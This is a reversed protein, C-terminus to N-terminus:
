RSRRRGARRAEPAVQPSTSSRPRISSSFRRSAARRGERAQLLGARGERRDLGRALMADVFPPLVFTARAAPDTSGSRAPQARRAGPHRHRRSRAHPVHREEAPRDAPGTIADIEEISYDGAAVLALARVVDFLALHNGIFNPSDKAVVVGKGLHVTPSRPVRRGARGSRHRADSDARAAAPLAAPQLLAHGALPAPLRRQARRGARRDPIGSTNSSVVSGKRRRPTWGSSCRASPTSSSSSASSSGTPRASGRCGRTSRPRPSSRGATPCSSRIPSSREPGSSGRRRPTPPSTSCCRRARRRQRLPRCDALGHRRRRARCRFPHDHILSPALRFVPLWTRATCLMARALVGIAIAADRPAGAVVGGFIALYGAIVVVVTWPAGWVRFPRALGPERRRLVLLSVLASLYGTFAFVSFVTAVSEFGGVQM